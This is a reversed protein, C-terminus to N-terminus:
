KQELRGPQELCQMKLQATESVRRCRSEPPIASNPRASRAIKQTATTTTHGGQDRLKVYTWNEGSYESM